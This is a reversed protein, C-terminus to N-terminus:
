MGEVGVNLNSSELHLVFAQVIEEIMCSQINHTQDGKFIDFVKSYKKYLENCFECLKRDPYPKDLFVSFNPNKSLFQEIGAIKQLVYEAYEASGAIAGKELYAIDWIKCKMKAYFHPKFYTNNREVDDELTKIVKQMETLQQEKVKLEQM